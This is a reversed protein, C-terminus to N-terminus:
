FVDTFFFYILLMEKPFSNRIFKLAKSMQNEVTKVSINLNQAIERYTLNEFRSLIFITRCRLPLQDLIEHLKKIIQSTTYEKRENLPDFAVDIVEDTWEYCLNKNKRLWDISENFVLRKLYAEPSDLEPLDSYKNWVKVFTDQVIDEAIDERNVLRYVRKCLDTYYEKFWLTIQEKSSDNM